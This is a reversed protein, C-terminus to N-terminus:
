FFLRLVYFIPKLIRLEPFCAALKVYNTYIMVQYSIAAGMMAQHGEM